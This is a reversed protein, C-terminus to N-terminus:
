PLSGTCFAHSCTTLGHELCSDQFLCHTQGSHVVKLSLLGGNDDQGQDSAVPSVGISLEPRLGSWISRSLVLRLRKALHAHSKNCLHIISASQVYPCSCAAFTQKTHDYVLTYAQKCLWSLFSNALGAHADQM